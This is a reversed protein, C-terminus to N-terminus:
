SVVARHVRMGARREETRVAVGRRLLDSLVGSASGESWGAAQALEALTLGDEARALWERGQQWKRGLPAPLAIVRGTRSPMARGDASTIRDPAPDRKRLAENVVGSSVGLRERIARTAEGRERLSWILAEREAVAERSGSLRLAALDGLWWEVADHWATGEGFATLHAGAERLMALRQLPRTLEVRIAQVERDIEELTMPRAVSIAARVVALDIVEASM